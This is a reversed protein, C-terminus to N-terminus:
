RLEIEVTTEAATDAVSAAAQVCIKTKPDCVQGKPCPPCAALLPGHTRRVDLRCHQYGLLLALAALAWLAAVPWWPLAHIRKRTM